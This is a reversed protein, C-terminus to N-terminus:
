SHPGAPKWAVNTPPPLNGFTHHEIIPEEVISPTKQRRISPMRWLGKNFSEKRSPKTGKPAEVFSYFREGVIMSKARPKKEDRVMEKESCRRRMVNNDLKSTIMKLKIREYLDSSVLSPTRYGSFYHRKWAPSRDEATEEESEARPHLYDIPRKGSFDRAQM